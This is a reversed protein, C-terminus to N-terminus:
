KTAITTGMSLSSLDQAEEAPMEPETSSIQLFGLTGDPFHKQQGPM